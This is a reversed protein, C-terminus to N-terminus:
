SENIFLLSFSSHIVIKKKDEMLEDRRHQTKKEKVKSPLILFDGFLFLGQSPRQWKEPSKKGHKGQTKHGSPSASSHGEGQREREEDSKRKIM